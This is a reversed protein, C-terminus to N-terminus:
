RAKLWKFAKHFVSKKQGCILSIIEDRLEDPSVGKARLRAILAAHVENPDWAAWTELQAAHEALSGRFVVGQGGRALEDGLYHVNGYEDALPAQAKPQIFDSM